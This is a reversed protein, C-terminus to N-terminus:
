RTDQPHVVLKVGSVGGAKMRDLAAPVSALGGPLIEVRNPVIVGKEFLEPLNKIIHKGFATHAPTGVLSQLVPSKYVEPGTYFGAVRVLSVTDNERTTPNFRQVTIISGGQAVCDYAQDIAGMFTADFVVKVKDALAPTTSLADLSVVHRDIFETAGLLRLYEVHTQSAYAVIRTFGLFKLLQIVYQGTSTSAGIVLASGGKEQKDWSFNPNLGVGIPAPAFLGICATSFTIPATSVEDFGLNKPMRIVIGADLAFYQQFGGGLMCHIVCVRDGKSFGKVDAGVEEVVGAFDAGMIVPYEGPGIPIDFEKQLYDMPNLACSMVKILVENKAPTPVDHPALVFDAKPAQILLAKQQM